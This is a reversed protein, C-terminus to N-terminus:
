GALAVFWRSMFRPDTGCPALSFAGGSAAPAELCQGTAANVYQREAPSSVTAQGIWVQRLEDVNGTQALVRTGSPDAELYGNAEVSSDARIQMAGGPVALQIFRENATVTSSTACADTYAILVSGSPITSDGGSFNLCTDSPSMPRGLNGPSGNTFRFSAYILSTAITTPGVAAARASFSGLRATGTFTPDFSQSGEASVDAAVGLAPAVVARNQDSAPASPSPTSNTPYGRVCFFASAHPSAPQLPSALGSTWPASPSGSPPESSDDCDAAAAVPWVTVSMQSGLGSAAVPDIVVGLGSPGAFGSAAPQDNTVQVVQTTQYRDNTITVDRATVTASVALTGASVQGTAGVNTSWLASAAPGGALGLVVGLGCAALWARM